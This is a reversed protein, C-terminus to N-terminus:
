NNIILESVPWDEYTGDPMNRRVILPLKRQALEKQAIQLPDTESELEVMVPACQSIQLARVGLVRAKEYKTM